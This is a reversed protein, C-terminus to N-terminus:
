AIDCLCAEAHIEPILTWNSLYLKQSCVQKVHANLSPGFSLSNFSDRILAPAPVPVVLPQAAMTALPVAVQADM